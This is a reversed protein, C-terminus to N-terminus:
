LIFEGYASEKFGTIAKKGKKLVPRLMIRPNEQILKVVEEDTLRELDIDM